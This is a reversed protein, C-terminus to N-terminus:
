EIPFDKMHAIIDRPGEWTTIQHKPRQNALIWEKKQNPTWANTFLEEPLEDFSCGVMETEIGAAQRFFSEDLNDNYPGGVPTGNIFLASPNPRVAMNKFPSNHTVGCYTLWTECAEKTDPKFQDMARFKGGFQRYALYHGLPSTGRVFLRDGMKSYFPTFATTQDMGTFAIKRLAELPVSRLSVRLADKNEVMVGLSLPAESEARIVKLTELSRAAAARHSSGHPGEGYFEYPLPLVFRGTSVAERISDPIALHNAPVDDCWGWSNTVPKGETLCRALDDLMTNKAAKLDVEIEVGGALDPIQQIAGFLEQNLAQAAESGGNKLALFSANLRSNADRFERYCNSGTM